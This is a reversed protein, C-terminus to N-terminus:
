AYESPPPLPLNRAVAVAIRLMEADIDAIDSEDCQNRRLWLEGMRAHTETSAHRPISRDPVLRNFQQQVGPPFFLEPKTDSM